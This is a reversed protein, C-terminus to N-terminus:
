SPLYKSIWGCMKKNEEERVCSREFVCSVQEDGTKRMRKTRTSSFHQEDGLCKRRGTCISGLSSNDIM